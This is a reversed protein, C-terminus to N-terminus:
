DVELQGYYTALGEEFWSDKISYKKGISLIYEELRRDIHTFVKIIKRLEKIMKKRGKDCMFDKDHIKFYHHMLYNRKLLAIRLESDLECPFERYQNASKIIRGFTRKDLNLEIKDINRVEMNPNQIRKIFLVLAILGQELVQAQYAALGFFAYVEKADNSEPEPPESYQKALGYKFNM